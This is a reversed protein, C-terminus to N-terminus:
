SQRLSGVSYTKKEEGVENVQPRFCLGNGFRQSKLQKINKLIKSKPRRIFGMFGDGCLTIEPKRRSASSIQARRLYLAADFPLGKGVNRSLTDTGDELTL